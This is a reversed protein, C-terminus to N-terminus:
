TQQGTASRKRSLAEYAYGGAAERAAAVLADFPRRSAINDPTRFEPHWQVGLMPWSQDQAEIAEIVGDESWAAARLGKGLRSCSQHHSSNVTVENPGLMRALSSEPDLRVPHSAVEGEQELRHNVSGSVELPIDIVLDGGLAVNVVQAGRCIALVPLSLDHASRALALDFADRERDVGYVTDTTARGYCSPDVDGGGTICLGHVRGLLVAIEDVDTTIPLLVPVGGAERIARTYLRAVVHVDLPGFSSPLDRILTSVGIIPRM